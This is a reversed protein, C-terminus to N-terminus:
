PLDVGLGAFLTAFIPVVKRHAHYRDSGADDSQQEPFHHRNECSQKSAEAHIQRQRRFDDYGHAIENAANKTKEEEHGNHACEKAQLDPIARPLAPEYEVGNDQLQRDNANQHSLNGHRTKRSREARQDGAAHGNELTEVDGGLGGTIRHDLLSQLLHSLREFSASTNGPMTVCIIATPSCVPAISAM